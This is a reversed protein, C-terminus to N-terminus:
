SDDFLHSHVIQYFLENILYTSVYGSFISRMVFGNLIFYDFLFFFLAEYFTIVKIFIDFSEDNRQIDNAEEDNLSERSKM